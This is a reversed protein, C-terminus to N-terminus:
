FNDNTGFFEDYDFEDESSEEYSYQNGYSLDGGFDNFLDDEVYEQDFSGFVISDMFDFDSDSDKDYLAQIVERFGDFNKIDIFPQFLFAQGMIMDDHYGDDAQYKNKILLFHHLEEILDQDHIILKEEELFTKLTNLIVPRNGRTTRFGPHEKNQRIKTNQKKDFHINEYEHELYLVDQVSQGQGENNEIIIYQYNYSEQWELLFDPMLLYNVQLRQAQVQEFPFNTIKFVQVTFYDTGDKQGDVTMIYKEGKEPEKYIRLKDDRLYLEPTSTLSELTEQNLLTMSSGIFSNAYNQNFYIEGYKQITDKKFEEPTYLSGDQKYRPPETWHTEYPVFGNSDERAGQVIDYFHNQGNQTSLLINKKWALGSQSPFISDQFEEWVSTRIFAAEDVVLCNHHILGDQIYTHNGQVEVPDFYDQEESLEQINLIKKDQLLEGKKFEKAKKFSNGEQFLHDHTCELESDQFILKLGTNKTKRVGLFEQFGSPTEILFRNNVKM